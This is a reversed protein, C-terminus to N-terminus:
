IGFLAGSCALPVTLLIILPNRFNNFQLSLIAFIFVISLAFFLLTTNQSKEAQEAAGLVTKKYSDPLIKNLIDMGAKLVEDFNKGESVGFGFYASRMQNYQFFEPPKTSPIMKAVVDLSIRKGQDNTVYIELLDSCKKTIEIIIPYEIGDKEFNLNRNGSFFIEMTRAIKEKSLGLKAVKNNYIHIKYVPDNM